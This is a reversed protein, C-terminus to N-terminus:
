KYVKKYTSHKDTASCPCVYRYPGGITENDCFSSMDACLFFAAAGGNTLYTSSVGFDSYGFGFPYSPAIYFAWYRQYWGSQWRQCSDVSTKYWHDFDYAPYGYADYNFPHYIVGNDYGDEAAEAALQSADDGPVSTQGYAYNPAGAYHFQINADDEAEALDFAVGARECDGACQNYGL